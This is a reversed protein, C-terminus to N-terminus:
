AENVYREKVEKDLLFVELNEDATMVEGLLEYNDKEPTDVLMATEYKGKVFIDNFETAFADGVEIDKFMLPKTGRILNELYKFM